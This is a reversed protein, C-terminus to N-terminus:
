RKPLLVWLDLRQKTRGALEGAREGAGWYLDARVAGVIAGGTDQAFVLKRLPQSSMPLTSALWVPAGM